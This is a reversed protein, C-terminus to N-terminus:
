SVTVSEVNFICRNTDVRKEMELIRYEATEGHQFSWDAIVLDYPCRYMEEKFGVTKRCNNSIGRDVVKTSYAVKTARLQSSGVSRFCLQNVDGFSPANVILNNYTAASKRITRSM